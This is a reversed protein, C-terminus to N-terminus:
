GKQRRAAWLGVLAIAVVVIGLWLWTQNAGAGTSTGTGEESGSGDPAPSGNPTAGAQSLDGPTSGPAGTSGSGGTSGAGAAAGSGARRTADAGSGPTADAGSTAAMTRTATPTASPAPTDTATPTPPETPTETPPVTPPPTATPPNALVQDIGAYSGLDIVWVYGYSTAAAGVGVERFDPDLMNARHPPDEMLWQFGDDLHQRAVFNEGIRVRERGAGYGAGLARDKPKRGDLGTHSYNTKTAIEQAHGFAIATLIPNVKYPPLGSDHRAENLRTLMVEALAVSDDALPRAPPAARVTAAAALALTPIALLALATSRRLQM